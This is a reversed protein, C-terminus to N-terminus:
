KGMRTNWEEETFWEQDGAYYEGSVGNDDVDVYIPSVMVMGGTRIVSYKALERM